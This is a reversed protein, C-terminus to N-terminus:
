TIDKNNGTAASAPALSRNGLLTVEAEATIEAKLYHKGLRQM